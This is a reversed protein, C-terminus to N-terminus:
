KKEKVNSKETITSPRKQREDLSNLIGARPNGEVKELASQLAEEAALGPLAELALRAYDSLEAKLLMKALVCVCRETGILALKRCAYEIAPIPVESQVVELLAGEIESLTETNDHAIIILDDIGMLAGRDGGWDYAKLKASLDEM